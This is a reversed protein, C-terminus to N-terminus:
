KRLRDANRSAERRDRKEQALALRRRDETTLESISKRQPRRSPPHPSLESLPGAVVAAGVFPLYSPYRKIKMITKSILGVPLAM